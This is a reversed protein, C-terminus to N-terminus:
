TQSFASYQFLHCFVVVRTSCPSPGVDAFLPVNYCFTTGGGPISGLIEQETPLRRIWQAVPAEDACRLSSRSYLETNPAALDMAADRLGCLM